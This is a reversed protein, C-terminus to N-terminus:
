DKSKSKQNRYECKITKWSMFKFTKNKKKCALYEDLGNKIENRKKEKMQFLTHAFSM